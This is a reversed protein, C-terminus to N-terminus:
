RNAVIFFPSGRPPGFDFFHSSRKDRNVHGFHSPPFPFKRPPPFFLHVHHFFPFRLPFRLRFHHHHRTRAASVTLVGADDFALLYSDSLLLTGQTADIAFTGTATAASGTSTVSPTGSYVSAATDGLFAGTVGPQLGAVTYATAVAATASTGQTAAVDTTTVTLTPQFAFLYREGTQTVSAPPLSALTADWIATNASDLDDFADTAPADSYILWNGGGTLSLVSAGAENIFDGTASLVIADGAAASSLAANAALTLDGQAAALIPGSATLGGDITFSAPADIAIGGASATLSTPTASLGLDGNSIAGLTTTLNGLATWLNTDATVLRTTGGWIDLNQIGTTAIDDTFASGKVSDGSLYALAGASNLTGSPFMSYYYGDAGTGTTAVQAGGSLIAIANGGGLLTVGNDGYAFGSIVQPTTPFFATLYPYSVGSVIGWDSPNQFTPLTGQLAATTLGNANSSGSSTPQGTTATDWYGDTITGDNYGVLGGVVTAGSVAGTAYADKITGHNIGVLGGVYSDGSVTGTAYADIITGNNIGVLGGVQSNGNVAGTAYADTITGYNYGVLGGVNFDGSVAGTAYADIIKGIQQGVLGGVSGGGSVAGTAYADTIEGPNGGVLGGVATAGSGGVTGTAYADTIEGPNFGVLGGVNDNGSVTGTAYADTITGLNSGVLGGFSNGTGTVAGGILGIDSIVGSSFGFLGVFDTSSLSVTLNAITNGLGHFTGSFGVEGNAVFGTGDWVDGLGDTGLPVWGTTSSADLSNALAYDGSLNNNVNQVDGMDYLLTYPQTNITLSAGATSGGTFDIDSGQAFSLELLSTGPVTTTDYGADLAVKGAGSVTVPADIALAGAADLTLGTAGAITLPDSVTIGAGTTTTEVYLGNALALTEDITFGGGTAIYGADALSTLGTPAANSGLASNLLTMNDATVALATGTSPAASYTTASTPAILTAGWIDFGGTSGTLTELRAGTASTTGEYALVASGTGSITGSPELFYYYGNAGTSVSGLSTGAADASVYAAGSSGSALPAVGSDQYAIGSIVQPTTPFFATLYPYSVGSVIGWDSPNQF